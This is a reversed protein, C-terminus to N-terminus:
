CSENKFHLPLYFLSVEGPTEKMEEEEEEVVAVDAAEIAAAAKKAAARESRARKRSPATKAPEPQEAEVVKSEKHSQAARAAARPAAVPCVVALARELAADAGDDQAALAALVREVLAAKRGSVRQDFYNLTLKLKAVKLSGLRARREEHLLAAAEVEPSAAADPSFAEPSSFGQPSTGDHAPSWASHASTPALSPLSAPPSRQRASTPAADCPAAAPSPAVTSSVATPADAPADTAPSDAPLPALLLPAAPAPSAAPLPALLPAPSESSQQSPAAKQAPDLEPKIQASSSKALALAHARAERERQLAERLAACEGETSERSASSDEVRARLAANEDRLNAVIATAAAVEEQATAAAAAASGAREREGRTALAGRQLAAAAKRMRSRGEERAAREARAQAHQTRLLRLCLVRNSERLELGRVRAASKSAALRAAYHMTSELRSRTAEADGVAACRSADLAAKEEEAAVLADRTTALQERLAVYAAHLHPDALSRLEALESPSVVEAM